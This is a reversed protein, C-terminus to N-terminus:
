AGALSVWTTPSTGLLLAAKAAAITTSASGNITGGTAPYVTSGGFLKNVTHTLENVERVCRGNCTPAYIKVNDPYCVGGKVGALWKRVEDTANAVHFM